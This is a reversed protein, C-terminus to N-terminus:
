SRKREGGLVVDGEGVAAAAAGASDKRGRRGRVKKMLKERYEDLRGAKEYGTVLSGLANVYNVARIKWNMLPGHHRYSRVLHAFYRMRGPASMVFEDKESLLVWREVSARVSPEKLDYGQAVFWASLQEALARRTSIRRRMREGDVTEGSEFYMNRGHIRYVALGEDVAVVESVFTALTAIYADAQITLEEPIPLLRQVVKRRFALGSTTLANFLLVDKLKAPVFGSIATFQADREEGAAMDLERLRHYVLGAGPNEEFEKVVRRLKGPLWYDDADLLAVVDGSARMLGLNFASAQGGNEKWVYEVRGAYKAVRERTDDTSGDDVVLVEMEDRPFDQGLVSEIAQEVFHGYNYTDILATM